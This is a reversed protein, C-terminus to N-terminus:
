GFTEQEEGVVAGQGVTEGMGALPHGLRVQGFHGADRSPDGEAAEPFPDVEVVAAGGGGGSAEGLGRGSPCGELDDDVLTAVALDPAHALGDAVGDSAQHAGPKTRQTIVRESRTLPARKCLSFNSRQVGGGLFFNGIGSLNRHNSIERTACWHQRHPYCTWKNIILYRSDTKSCNEPPNVPSLSPYLTDEPCQEALRASPICSM